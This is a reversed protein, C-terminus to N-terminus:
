GIESWGMHADYQPDMPIRHPAAMGVISVRTLHTQFYRGLDVMETECILEACFMVIRSSSKQRARSVAQHLASKQKVHKPWFRLWLSSTCLNSCIMPSAVQTSVGLDRFGQFALLTSVSLPLLRLVSLPPFSLIHGLHTMCRKCCLQQTKRWCSLM